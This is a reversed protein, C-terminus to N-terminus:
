SPMVYRGESVIFALVEAFFTSPLRGNYAVIGKYLGYYRVNEFQPLQALIDGISQPSEGPRVACLIVASVPVEPSYTFSYGDEGVYAVRRAPLSLDVPSYLEMPATLSKMILDQSEIVLQAEDHISDRVSCWGKSITDGEEVQGMVDLAEYLLEEAEKRIIQSAIVHPSVTTVDVHTM